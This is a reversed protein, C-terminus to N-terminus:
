GSWACVWQRIRSRTRASTPSWEGAACSAGTSPSRSSTAAGCATSCNSSSRRGSGADVLAPVGDNHVYRLAAFPGERVAERFAFALQIAHADGVLYIAAGEDVGGLCAELFEPEPRADYRHHCDEGAGDWDNASPMGSLALPLYADSAVRRLVAGGSLVFAALLVPAALLMAVGAFASRGPVFPTWSARRLPQEWFHCSAAALAFSLALVGLQMPLGQDGLTWRLLVILPWHWLYLAYSLRGVYSVPAAGLVSRVPDASHAGETSVILLATALTAVVPGGTPLVLAWVLAAVALASLVPAVAASLRGVPALALLVGAALQWFRAPTAYFAVATPALLWCLFAAVCVGTLLALRLRPERVLLLLPAVLLYFQEEVGLSWTHTFLNLEAGVGFYDASQALLVWNSFGVMAAAAALAM